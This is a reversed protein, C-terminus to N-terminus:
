RDQIKALEEAVNRVWDDPDVARRKCARIAADVVEPSFDLPEGRRIKDVIERAFADFKDLQESV